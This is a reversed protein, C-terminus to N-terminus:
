KELKIVDDASTDYADTKKKLLQKLKNVEDQLKVQMFYKQSSLVAKAELL